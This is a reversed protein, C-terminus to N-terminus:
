SFKAIDQKDLLSLLDKPKFFHRNEKEYPYMISTQRFVHELGLVHGIEHLMVHLLSFSIQNKELFFKKDDNIHLEGAYLTNPFYAHGLTLSDFKYCTKNKSTSHQKQLFGINIDARKNTYLFKIKTAKAWIDFALKCTEWTVIDGVYKSNKFITWTFNGSKIINHNTWANIEELTEMTFEIDNINKSKLYKTFMLSTNNKIHENIIKNIDEASKSKGYELSDNNIMEDILQRQIPDIKFYDM